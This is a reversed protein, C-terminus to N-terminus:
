KTTNMYIRSAGSKPSFLAKVTCERQLRKLRRVKTTVSKFSDRYSISIFSDFHGNFTKPGNQVLSSWKQLTGKISPSIHSKLDSVSIFTEYRYIGDATM